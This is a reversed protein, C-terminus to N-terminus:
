KYIEKRIYDADGSRESIEEAIEFADAETIEISDCFEVKIIYLEFGDQWGVFYCGIPNSEDDAKITKFTSENLEKLSLNNM